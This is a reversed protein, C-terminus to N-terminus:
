RKEYHKNCSVECSNQIKDKNYLRKFNNHYRISNKLCAPICMEIAREREQRSLNNVRERERQINRPQVIHKDYIQATGFVLIYVGFIIGLIEM